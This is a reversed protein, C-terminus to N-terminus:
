AKIAFSDAYAAPNSGDWVVGDILTSSRLPSSPVALKLAGAAEAYLATQNIQAAVAAYAPADKLLGWRKFQTLFWMGDSHYPFNVSGDKCFAMAHEDKWSNGLGDEYQALFRPEIVQVPANVYAKGSILKATSKRNEVSAEIFRSADLIAMILARAANPYQEVFARTTGLVKEPHDPWIQQTTTATFGIKDFF